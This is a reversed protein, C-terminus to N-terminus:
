EAESELLIYSSMTQDEGIVIVRGGRELDGYANYGSIQGYALM